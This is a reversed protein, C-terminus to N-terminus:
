PRRQDKTGNKNLHAPCVERLSKILAEAAPSLRADARTSIGISGVTSPLKIPLLVLHGQECNEKAVEGPGVSVYDGRRLLRRNTLLSVSEIAHAPPELSADRFDKEIQRRLTTETRPLIWPFNALDALILKRRRALPHGSRVVLCASDTFLVEQ